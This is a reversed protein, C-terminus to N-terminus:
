YNEQQKDFLPAEGNENSASNENEKNEKQQKCYFIWDLIIMINQLLAYILFLIRYTLLGKRSSNKGELNILIGPKAVVTLNITFLYIILTDIATIIIYCVIRAINSKKTLIAIYAFGVVILLFGIFFNLAVVNKFKKAVDECEEIPFSIPVPFKKYIFINLNFYNTKYSPMNKFTEFKGISTLFEKLTVGTNYFQKYAKINDINGSYYSEIERFHM